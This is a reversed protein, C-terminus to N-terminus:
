KQGPRLLDKLQWSFDNPHLKMREQLRRLNAALEQDGPDIQQAETYNKLADDYNHFHLELDRGMLSLAKATRPNLRLARQYETVAMGHRSLGDLIEGMALHYEVSQPFNRDAETATVIAEADQAQMRSWIDIILSKPHMAIEEGSSNIALNVLAAQLALEYQGSRNAAMALPGAVGTKYPLHKYALTLKKVAQNLDGMQLAAIGRIKYAPWFQRDHNIDTQALVAAETFREQTLRIEGLATPLGLIKENERMAKLYATEAEKMEQQSAFFNGQWFCLQPDNPFRQRAIALLEGAAHIRGSQVQCKILNVAQGHDTPLDQAAMQYQEEAEDALSLTEYYAGLLIRGQCNNPEHELLAELKKLAASETRSNGITSEIEKIIKGQDPTDIAYALQAYVLSQCLLLPVLAFCLLAGSRGFLVPLGQFLCTKIPCCTPVSYRVEDFIWDPRV